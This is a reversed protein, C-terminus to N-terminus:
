PIKKIVTSAVGENYYGEPMKWVIEGNITTLGYHKVTYVEVDEDLLRLAAETAKDSTTQALLKGSRSVIYKNNNNNNM